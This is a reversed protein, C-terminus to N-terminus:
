RGAPPAPPRSRRPAARRPPTAGAPSPRAPPTEPETPAPAPTATVATGEQMRLWGGVAVGAALVIGVYSAWASYDDILNKLLAFVFVIGALGATVTKEPVPLEPLDVEFLQLAVWVLLAVLVIGMVVGWFGNWANQSASAIEVGGVEVSVEQWALFTDIFLLIGAALLIKTGTSLTRLDPM